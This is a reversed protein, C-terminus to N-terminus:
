YVERLYCQECYVQEPREPSYSTQIAKNCKVCARDWLRMPNRKKLRELHREHPTLRPIPINNEKYFKLEQPIIKYPKGSAESILIKSLISDKVDNIHDPTEINPGKYTMTEKEDRWQWGRALVAEESLPIQEHALTENYAYISNKAPFFEGWEGTKKMHKIIRPVLVEYDEKSYQKNLICYEKKKLGVSGFCNRSSFIHDCYTLDSCNDWCLNSFRIGYVNYGCAITEYIKEAGGGWYSYDMCDKAKQLCQSYRVDELADVEFCLYANKCHSMYDGVSNQNNNGIFERVILDNLVGSLKEKIKEVTSYSGLDVERMFQEYSEKTHPENFIYYQKNVLNSSGFCNRVGQCNRLFASDSCNISDQSYSVNFCDTCGVSEYCLESNRLYSNDVSNKSHNVWSGYYVNECYNTSFVLYCNKNRSACNCYDSNEMPKQQILALRPVQNRLEFFQEFFPRSFDFDRGYDMADWEDSWWADLDYVPFPKDTSFASIISKGTLDCKRHYLHRENRYSLRRQMRCQPCLTPEPVEMKQYFEQDEPFIEFSSHCQNCTM